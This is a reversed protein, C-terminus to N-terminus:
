WANPFPLGKPKWNPRPPVILEWWGGNESFIVHSLNKKLTGHDFPNPYDADIRGRRGNLVLFDVSTQGSLVLFIHWGFLIGVALCLALCICFVVAFSVEANTDHYGRGRKIGELFPKAALFAGLSCLAWVWGVFVLFHRAIKFASVCDM